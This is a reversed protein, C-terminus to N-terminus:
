VTCSFIGLRSNETTSFNIQIYNDELVFKHFTTEESENHINILTFTGKEQFLRITSKDINKFRSTDLNM